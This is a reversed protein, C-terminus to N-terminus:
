ELGYIQKAENLAKGCTDADGAADAKRARDLAAAADSKAKDAANEVSGPTPQHHLQAGLSQAASPEGAGSPSPNAQAQAIQQEVLAIQGTCPGARCTTAGALLATITLLMASRIV